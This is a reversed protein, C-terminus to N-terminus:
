GDILASHGLWKRVFGMQGVHYGEHFAFLVLAGRMTGDPSAVREPTPATLDAESAARLRRMLEPTIEKWQELVQEVGPYDGPDRVKAGTAFLDGWPVELAAGLLNAVRFRFQTLHGAIWLLSNSRAGPRTLLADRDVDRLAKVFLNGSTEFHQTLMAHVADM